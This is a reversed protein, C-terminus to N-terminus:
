EPPDLLSCSAAQYLVEDLATLGQAGELQHATGQAWSPADRHLSEKTLDLDQRKKCCQRVKSPCWLSDYGPPAWELSILAAPHHCGHGLILCFPFASQSKCPLFCPLVLKRACKWGHWSWQLTSKPFAFNSRVAGLAFARTGNAWQVVICLTNPVHFHGPHARQPVGMCVQGPCRLLNGITGQLEPIVARWHRKLIKTPKKNQLLKLKHHESVCWREKYLPCKEGQEMSM